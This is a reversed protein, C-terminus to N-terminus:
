SDGTPRPFLDPRKRALHRFNIGVDLLGLVSTCAFSFELWVCAVIVMARTVPNASRGRLWELLVSIGQQALVIRCCMVVNMGVIAVEDQLAPLHPGLLQAAVGLGFLVAVWLPVDYCAFVGAAPQEKHTRASLWAGFLSSLATSLGAVFYITPWYSVVSERAELVAETGDLDLSNWAPELTQDVTQTIVQEISTGQLSTSVVDIGIMALAVVAACAILGGTRLGGLVYGRALVYACAVQLLTSPLVYPGLLVVTGLSAAVLAALLAGVRERRGGVGMVVAFGFAIFANSLVPMAPVLISGLSSWIVGTVLRLRASGARPAQEVVALPRDESDLGTPVVPRKSNMSDGM